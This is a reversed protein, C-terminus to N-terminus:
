SLFEDFAKQDESHFWIEALMGDNVHAVIVQRQELTRGNRQLRQTTLAVVHDESGLIDHQEFQPPADLLSMEKQFIAAIGERGRHDGSLPGDGPVHMVVDEAHLELFGPFDGATLLEDSRRMVDANPHGM